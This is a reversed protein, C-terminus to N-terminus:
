SQLRLSLEGGIFSRSEGDVDILLQGQDGVGLMVGDVVTGSSALSVKKGTFASYRNWEDRYSDFGQNSYVSLMEVLGALLASALRNRSVGFDAELLSVWPQDVSDDVKSMAVNIGVGVVVTCDSTIDGSLEILVGGLKKEDVLIDNPWKLSARAFGLSELVQCVVVGVALSLGEIEAVGGEFGWGLSLYLNKAFPSYWARGRRGRGLTQQEAFCVKGTISCGSQFEDLLFQNTSPISGFVNLGTLLANVGSGLQECILAEDLLEFSEARYGVGKLSEVEVGLEAVRKVQKSVAARSIDLALGLEEGSHWEGDGLLGLLRSLTFSDKM